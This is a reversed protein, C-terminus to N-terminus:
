KAYKDFGTLSDKERQRKQYEIARQIEEDIQKRREEDQKRREELEEETKETVAFRSRLAEVPDTKPREEPPLTQFLTKMVTTFNKLVSNYAQLSASAKQGYQNAGNRYEDTTGESNIDEQLDELTIKMFSANQIMPGLFSKENEPLNEFFASIRKYEAKVRKEKSAKVM